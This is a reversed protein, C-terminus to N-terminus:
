LRPLLIYLIVFQELSRYFLLPCRGCRATNAHQSGLGTEPHLKLFIVIINTSLAVENPPKNNTNM